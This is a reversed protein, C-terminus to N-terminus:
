SSVVMAMGTASARGAAAATLAPVTLASITSASAIAVWIASATAACLAASAWAKAAKVAKALLEEMNSEDGHDTIGIARYGAAVARRILESPLLVGDSAFTHTHLDIIRKFESEM